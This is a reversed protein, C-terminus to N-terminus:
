QIISHALSIRVVGSGPLGIGELSVLVRGFASLNAVSSATSDTAISIVLGQTAVDGWFELLAEPLGGPRPLYEKMLFDKIRSEPLTAWDAPGLTFDTVDTFYYAISNAANHTLTTSM